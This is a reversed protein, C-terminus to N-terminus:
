FLALQSLRIRGAASIQVIERSSSIVWGIFPGEDKPEKFSVARLM